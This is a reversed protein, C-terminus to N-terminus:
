PGASCGLPARPGGLSPVPTLTPSGLSKYLKDSIVTVQAGTDLVVAAAVGNVEGKLLISPADPPEAARSSWDQSRTVAERAQIDITQLKLLVATVDLSAIERLLYCQNGNCEMQVEPVWSSDGAVKEREIACHRDKESSDASIMGGRDNTVQARETERLQEGRERGIKDGREVREVLSCGLDIANLRGVRLTLETPRERTEVDERLSERATTVDAIGSGTARRPRDELGHDRMERGDWTKTRVSESECLERGRKECLKREERGVSESEDKQVDDTMEM